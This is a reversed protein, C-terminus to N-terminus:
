RVTRLYSKQPQPSFEQRMVQLFTIQHPRNEASEPEPLAAEDIEWREPKPKGAVELYSYSTSQGEARQEFRKHTWVWYGLADLAHDHFKKPAELLDSHSIRPQRYVYTSHEAIAFACKPDFLIAACDKLAAIEEPRLKVDTLSEELELALRRQEEVPLEDHLEPDFGIAELLAARKALYFQHFRAPDRLLRRYFPFREEPRPKHPVPIMPFGLRIWRQMETPVASDIVGGRVDGRWEQHDAWRAADETTAGVVYFEDFVRVKGDYEQLAEVAYANAGGSPDVALHVPEGPLYPCPEVHVKKSFQPFILNRARAPIAGFQELFDVAPMTREYEQLIPTQRGQPFAYFNVEWSADVFVEWESSNEQTAQQYFFEDEGEWSSILLAQGNRDALPPLIGRYWSEAAVQAAEDVVCYDVGAGAASRPDELSVGEIRSGNPLVLLKDEKSNRLTVPKVGLDRFTEVVLDFARSVHRSTPAALWISARPRILAIACSEKAALFTKGGRRGWAVLRFRAPSRAVQQQGIWHGPTGQQDWQVCTDQLKAYESLRRDLAPDQGLAIVQAQLQTRQASDEPLFLGHPRFGIRSFGEFREAVTIPTFRALRAEAREVAPQLYAGEPPRVLASFDLEAALQQASTM